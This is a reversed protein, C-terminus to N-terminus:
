IPRERLRSADVLENVGRPEGVRLCSASGMTGCFVPSHRLAKGLKLCLRRPPLLRLLNELKTVLPASSHTSLPLAASVAIVGGGPDPWSFSIEVSEISSSSFLRNLRKPKPSASLCKTSAPGAQFGLIGGNRTNTCEGDFLVDVREPANM